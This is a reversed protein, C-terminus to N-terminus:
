GTPKAWPVRLVERGLTRGWSDSILPISAKTIFLQSNIWLQVHISPAAMDRFFLPQMWEFSSIQKLSIYIGFNAGMNKPFINILATNGWKQQSLYYHSFSLIYSLFEHSGIIEKSTKLHMFLPRSNVCLYKWFKNLVKIMLADLKLWSSTLYASDKDM